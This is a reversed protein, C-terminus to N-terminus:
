FAAAEAPRREHVDVFLNGLQILTRTQGAVDGLQVVTRLSQLYADEAAGPKGAAQYAM